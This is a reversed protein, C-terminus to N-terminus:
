VLTADWRDVWRIQEGRMVWACQNSLCIPCVLLSLAHGLWTRFVGLWAVGRVVACVSGWGGLRPLLVCVAEGRKARGSARVCPCVSVRNGLKAWLGSSWYSYIYTYIYIHICICVYIFMHMYIYICIYVYIYIYM